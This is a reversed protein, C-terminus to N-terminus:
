RFFDIFARLSLSLNNRSPYYLYMHEAPPNWEELIRVLSGKEVEEATYADFTYCIGAGDVAARVITAFDDTALNGKTQVELKKQQAQFEWINHVGSPFRYQLCQHDLLDHPTKPTGFRELYSPAACTSFPLQPGIPLAIMDQQLRESFRIGADYGQDVIDILGDNTVIDLTVEPYRLSWAGLKPALLLQAASRPVNLKLRGIPRERDNNLSELAWGINNLAPDLNELLRAGADSVSVSRTSRNLLRVGLSQELKSVTHSLASATLHLEQAARRFSRWHAVRAFVMLANLDVNM